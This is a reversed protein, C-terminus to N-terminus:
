GVIWSYNFQVEKHGWSEATHLPTGRINAKNPEARDLLLQALEKLDGEQAAVHLPTYGYKATKNAEAGMNLLVNVVENRDFYAAEWLATNLVDRWECLECGDVFSSSLLHQVVDNM